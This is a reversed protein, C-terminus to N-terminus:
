YFENAKFNLPRDTPGMERAYPVYHTYGLTVRIFLQRVSSPQSPVATFFVNISKNEKKRTKKAAQTILRQKYM